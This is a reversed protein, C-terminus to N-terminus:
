YGRIRDVGNRLPQGARLDALSAALAEAVATAPLLSAEHPTITIEPRQWFPHDRPLPERRFVDLSAASLQGGDLAALLDDEVLHEGRGLQILVAGRPMRTFFAANLFGETQPTLPLLNILIDSQAALEATATPGTVLTVGPDAPRPSTCAARTDFGLTAIARAVARGMTGYGLIGVVVDRPPRLWTISDRHWHAARANELFRGMRRHHWVVQWAAFGAMTQAQDSDHVRAVLVDPPLSPDSLIGDVGAAICQVLRLNPYRAFSGPAPRYSLAVAVRAPDTVQDPRLLRVAPVSQLAPAFIRELNLADCLYVLDLTETAAVAPAAATM